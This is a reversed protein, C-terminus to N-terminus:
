INKSQGMKELIFEVYIMLFTYCHRFRLWISKKSLEELFEALVRGINDGENRAIRKSIYVNMEIVAGM